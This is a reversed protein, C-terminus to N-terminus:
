CLDAAIRGAISANGGPGQGPILLWKCACRGTEQRDPQDSFEVAHICGCPWDAGQIGAARCGSQPDACHPWLGATRRRRVVRHHGRRGAGRCSSRYVAQGAGHDASPRDRAGTRAVPWSGKADGCRTRQFADQAMGSLGKARLALARDLDAITAHAVKGIVAGTSPNVVDLTKGGAAACWQGDILLQTDPYTTVKMDM